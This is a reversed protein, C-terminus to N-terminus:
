WNFVQALYKFGTASLVELNARASCLKDTKDVSIKCYRKSILVVSDM